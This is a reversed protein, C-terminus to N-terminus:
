IEDNPINVNKAMSRGQKFIEEGCSILAEFETIALQSVNILDGVMAKAFSSSFDLQFPGFVGKEAREHDPRPGLLHSMRNPHVVRSMTSYIEKLVPHRQYGANLVRGPRLKEIQVLSCLREPKENVWAISCVTEVLGRAAAYFGNLNKRAIQEVSCLTLQYCRSLLGLAGWRSEHLESPSKSAIQSDIVRLQDFFDRLSHVQREPVEPWAARLGAVAKLEAEM